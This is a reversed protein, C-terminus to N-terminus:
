PMPVAALQGSVVLAPAGARPPVVRPVPLLLPGTAARAAPPLLPPQSRYQPSTDRELQPGQWVSPFPAWSAAAAAAAPPWRGAEPEPTVHSSATCAPARIDWSASRQHDWSEQQCSEKDKYMSLSCWHLDAKMEARMKGDWSPMWNLDGSV